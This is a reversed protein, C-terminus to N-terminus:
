IFLGRPNTEDEKLPKDLWGMQVPVEYLRGPGLRQWFHRMGPVIVRAVPFGVDKRTLDLVLTELGRKAAAEICFLLSDYITPQCLSPYDAAKKLPQNQLPVLYPQNAMTAHNLWDVFTQDETLYKGQGADTGPAAAVPLLQNLEILAREVAIRADPHAGFGFVINEREAGPRHSIAAFAPIQLDASLDLVYLSRDISQYYQSLQRFYPDNFSSLEVAPKRLRNYWWLATSDREVLELFGQLMAEALSNGAACGSSDPYSFLMLEDEAPYQSYCFCSPLYKFRQRTLSYVPTWEMELVPDFPVPVLAYFKGCVRNSAERNRYQTESFNMCDNPHIGDHALQKLSATICPEDGQYTMSFREIAEALAGAKAQTRSRGKGGNSSRMHSNLWSLTKSQLATNPGSAYNYLPVGRVPYYPKLFKVVGTIPSVHHRYKELTEEPAVERYGGANSACPNSKRELVIPAPERDLTEPRGCGKCQPRKVLVHSQSSLTRTDLTVIKGALRENEGFYLWKVIELAALNVAAHLSAPVHAAPIPLNPESPNQARYFANVPRNLKLRQELCEWCGTKGPLFLPGLWPEVGVAKVLLWPQGTDLAERNVRRLEERQHDDTFVVRLGGSEGTRIGLAALTPLFLEATLEGVTEFVVAKEQLVGALANAEIGLSNWYACTEPALAPADESLYGKKELVELAYLTELPSLRNALSAVLEDVGLGGQQLASLVLSYPEGSLFVSDSESTLLIGQRDLFEAHYCYNLRPRKLMM